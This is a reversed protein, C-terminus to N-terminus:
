SQSPTPPSPPPSTPSSTRPLTPPSPPPPAPPPAPPPPPPPPPPHTPPPPPRPRGLRRRRQRPRGLRRRVPRHVRVLGSLSTAPGCIRFTTPRTRRASGSTTRVSARSPLPPSGSGTCTTRVPTAWPLRLAM